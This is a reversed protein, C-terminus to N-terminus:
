SLPTSLRRAAEVLAVRHMALRGPSYPDTGDAALLDAPSILWSSALGQVLVLLDMPPLGSSTLGSPGASMAKIKGAYLAAANPGAAPRELHRWITMRLAQPNDILYDFLRGAYGPLDDETLPVTEILDSLVRDLAATFLWDKSEFYVYISRKNANAAVAIRDIRAGALGFTAFETIAAALIRNRTATSDRVM